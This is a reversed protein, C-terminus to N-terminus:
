SIIDITDEIGKTQYKINISTVETGWNAPNRLYILGLLNVSLANWWSLMLYQIM